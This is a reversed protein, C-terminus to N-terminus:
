IPEIQFNYYGRVPHVGLFRILLTTDSGVFPELKDNLVACGFVYLDGDIRNGDLWEVEKQTSSLIYVNSDYTGVNREVKDVAGVFFEGKEAEQFDWRDRDESSEYRKM